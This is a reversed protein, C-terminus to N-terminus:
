SKMSSIGMHEERQKAEKLGAKRGMEEAPGGHNGGPVRGTAHRHFTGVTNALCVVYM